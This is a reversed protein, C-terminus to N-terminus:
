KGFSIREGVAAARAQDKEYTKRQMECSDPSAHQQLCEAYHTYSAIVKKRAQERVLLDVCGFGGGIILALCWVHFTRALLTILPKRSDRALSRPSLPIPLTSRARTILVRCSGAMLDVKLVGLM